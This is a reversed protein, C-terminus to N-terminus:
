VTSQTTSLDYKDTTAEAKLLKLDLIPLDVESISTSIKLNEM